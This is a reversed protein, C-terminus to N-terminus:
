RFQTIGPKSTVLSIKGALMKTCWWYDYKRGSSWDKTILYM